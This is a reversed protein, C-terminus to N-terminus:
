KSMVVESSRSTKPIQVSRRWWVLMPALRSSFPSITISSAASSSLTKPARSRLHRGPADAARSALEACTRAVPPESANAGDGLGWYQRDNRGGVAQRRTARCQEPRRVARSTGVTTLGTGTECGFSTRLGLDPPLSSSFSRVGLRRQCDVEIVRGILMPYARRHAFVVAGIETQLPVFVSHQGERLTARRLSVEGAVACCVALSTRRLRAGRRGPARSMGPRQGGRRLAQPM